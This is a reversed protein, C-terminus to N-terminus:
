LGGRVARVLYTEAKDAATLHGNSFNVVWASTTVNAFTTSTWYASTGTGPFMITNIAPIVETYEAITQLENRNPLRWDDLTLFILAECYALADEWTMAATEAQIWMLGTETDTVTGDENDVLEGFAVSCFLFLVILSMNILKFM